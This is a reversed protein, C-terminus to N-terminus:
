RCRRREHRASSPLGLNTTHSHLDGRYLLGRRGSAIAETIANFPDTKALREPMMFSNQLAIAVILLPFPKKLTIRITKRWGTPWPQCGLDLLLDPVLEGGAVANELNGAQNASTRAGHLWHLALHNRSGSPGERTLV